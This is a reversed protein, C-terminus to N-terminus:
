CGSTRGLGHKRRIGRRCMVGTGVMFDDIRAIHQKKRKKQFIKPLEFGGPDSSDGSEQSLSLCNSKQYTIMFRESDDMLSSVLTNLNRMSNAYYVADFEKIFKDEGMKHLKHRTSVGLKRSRCCCCLPSIFTYLFDTIKWDYRMRRKMASHASSSLIDRSKLMNSISGKSM